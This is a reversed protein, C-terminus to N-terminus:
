PRPVFGGDVTFTQGTIFSAEASCVFLVTGVLDAMAGFRKLAQGRTVLEQHEPALHELVAPSGIMGPAIGVVRTGEPGLEAALSMTLGNLALKSVGYAGGAALYAAMSSQNVIVGGGRRAMSARCARACLLAGVVNVDLIRRWQSAPLTTTENFRGLHLGANNILVDVGGFTDLTIGVLAAVDGETAVDCHVGLAVDSARGSARGSASADAVILAVTAATGADDIDAVVVTAGEAAFARAYERGIGNGAGTVIVVQDVFRERTM